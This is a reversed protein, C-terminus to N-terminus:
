AVEGTIAPTTGANRIEFEILVEVHRSIGLWTVARPADEANRVYGEIAQLYLRGADFRLAEIPGALRRLVALSEGAGHTQVSRGFFLLERGLKERGAAVGSRDILELYYGSTPDTM